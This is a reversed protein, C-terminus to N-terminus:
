GSDVFIEVRMAVCLGPISADVPQPKCGTKRCLTADLSPIAADVSKTAQM